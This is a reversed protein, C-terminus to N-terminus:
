AFSSEMGDVPRARGVVATKDADDVVDGEESKLKTWMIAGANRLGHAKAPNQGDRRGPRGDKDGDEQEVESVYAVIHRFGNKLYFPEVGPSSIVVAPLGEAEARRLGWEVLQSGIGRSKHSPAVALTWLHWREKPALPETFYRGIFPAIRGGFEWMYLPDPDSPSPKSCARNTYLMRYLSFSRKVVPRMLRGVEFM